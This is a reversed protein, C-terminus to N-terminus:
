RTDEGGNRADLLQYVRRAATEIEGRGPLTFSEVSTQTVAWLYSREAGLSYELLLTDADLVQTQIEELTLPLPQTL